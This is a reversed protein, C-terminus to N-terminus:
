ASEQVNKYDKLINAVEVPSLGSDLIMASVEEMQRDKKQKRLADLEKREAELKRELIQIQDMKQEIKEDISKRPGRAMLM